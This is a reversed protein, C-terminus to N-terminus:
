APIAGTSLQSTYMLYQRGIELLPGDCMGDDFLEITEKVQGKYLRDVHMQATKFAGPQTSIRTVTGLFVLPTQGVAQCPPPPVSCSCALARGAFLSISLIIPQVISTNFFMRGMGKRVFLLYWCQAEPELPHPPHLMIDEYTAIRRTFGGSVWPSRWFIFSLVSRMRVVWTPLRGRGCSTTSRIKACSRPSGTSAALNSVVTWRATSSTIRSCFSAPM